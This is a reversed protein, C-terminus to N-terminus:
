RKKKIIVFAATGGAAIVVVVIVIWWPFGGETPQDAAGGGLAPALEYGCVTCLQATDDTAEPGPIHAAEEAKLDCGSCIHWHNVEDTSWDEGYSHSTQRTYGCVSCNTDCANEFDHDAYSGLEECGSCAYWHGKEDATWTDAYSHTHNLAAKIIYGCVTCTQATTETAEAGPTHQALDKKDKCESCTYWHSTKDKSWSSSYKHSITRTKGCVNCDTDCGHDYTHTTLPYIKQTRTTSCVTCTFKKEGEEKCTAEKTVVGSSWSHSATEEKQCVSCVRNHKTDSIKTWNGYKHDITKGTDETKTAGCSNCTYKRQGSEKCTAQKITESSWNHTDKKVNGCISCTQQHWDGIVTFNGYSHKCNVYLYPRNVTTPIAGNSDRTNVNASITYSGFKADDKIRMKFTFIEGSVRTGSAYAFTGTGNSFNALATGSLTCNGSVFEFVSSDYNLMFAASRCDDVTSITVSFTITDGRYSSPKDAQVTMQASTTASVTMVTATLLLICLLINLIKKM